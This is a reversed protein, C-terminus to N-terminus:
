GYPLPSQLHRFIYATQIVNRSELIIRIGTIECEFLYHTIMAKSIVLATIRVPLYWDACLFIHFLTHAQRFTPAAM